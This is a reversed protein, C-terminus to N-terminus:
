RTNIRTNQNQVYREFFEKTQNKEVIISTKDWLEQKFSDHNLIKKLILLNNDSITSEKGKMFGYVITSPGIDFDINSAAINSFMRRNAVALIKVNTNGKIATYPSFGYDIHKGIVDVILQNTGKYEVAVANTNQVLKTMMFNMLRTSSGIVINNMKNFYEIDHDKGTYLVMPSHGIMFVSDLEVFNGEDNPVRIFQSPSVLCMVNNNKESCHKNAIMGSAGARHEVVINMNYVVAKEQILRALISTGGGPPFGVVIKLENAWSVSLSCLLMLAVVIQKM